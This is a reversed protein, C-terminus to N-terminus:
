TTTPRGVPIGGQDFLGKVLVLLPAPLLFFQAFSTKKEAKEEGFALPSVADREKPLEKLKGLIATAPAFGAKKAGRILSFTLPFFVNERQSTRFHLVCLM